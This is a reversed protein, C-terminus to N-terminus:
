SQSGVNSTANYLLIKNQKCFGWIYRTCLGLLQNEAIARLEHIIRKGHFYYKQKMTM